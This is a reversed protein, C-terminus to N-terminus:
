GLIVWLGYIHLSFVFFVAVESEDRSRFPKFLFIRGPLSAVFKIGMARTPIIFKCFFIM